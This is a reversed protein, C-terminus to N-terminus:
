PGHPSLRGRSDLPRFPRETAVVGTGDDDDYGGVGRQDRRLELADGLLNGQAKAAIAAVGAVSGAVDEEGERSGIWPRYAGFAQVLEGHQRIIGEVRNKEGRHLGGFFGHDIGHDCGFGHLADVIVLDYGQGM